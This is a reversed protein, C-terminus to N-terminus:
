NGAGCQATVQALIAADLLLGKRSKASCIQNAGFGVASRFDAGDLLAGTLDAGTLVTGPLQAWRLDAGRLDADVFIAAGLQANNLYAGPLKASWLYAGQMDVHELNAGNLHSERLDAKEFNTRILTASMLKAGYLTAGDVRADVLTAGTLSAYSLNAARLDSRSLNAGDLVARDLNAHNMQAQDLTAYRLDTQGLDASRLDAQSLFAGQFKARLLHANALFVRYAQAYRFNSDNLRAGKVRSVQEDSGNWDAPKTSIVAETLDAYPDVGFSWLATPAWRRISGAGFEPARDKGHPVGLITGASTFTLAGLLVLATTVPNIGRLKVLAREVVSQDLTWNAAPKGVKTTSYLAAGSAGVVLFEQLVTGHIEQLTLYRLWYFLLTAPVIWYALLISIAKEIVRTSPADQNMWRFHVRMLGVVIRPQNEGLARGDPFVAPLELVTDWLHQLHFHFVLYVIFLAFPAILYFQVTPLAASAEPSHLFRLISSNTLLQFDKTAWIMIWSLVSLSMMAAFYGYVTRSARKFEALAEFQLIHPPLAAEHLNAGALQHPVLGMSTELSAGELNAGELNAGVLCADRFNARVLCADRLDTMLLDAARLNADRLDMYRLNAGILDNGELDAAAFDIRKGTAGKSEIWEHHSALKEEFSWDRSSRAPARPVAVSESAAKASIEQPVESTAVEADVEADVGADVEVDVPSTFHIGPAPSQGSAQPQTASVLSAPAQEALEEDRPIGLITNLDEKVAMSEPAKQEATADEAHELRSARAPDSLNAYREIASAIALDDDSTDVIEDEAFEEENQFVPEAAASDSFAAHNDAPEERLPRRSSGDERLQAELQRIWPEETEPAFAELGAASAGNASAEATMEGSEALVREEAVPVGVSASQGLRTSQEAPAAVEAAEPEAEASARSVRAESNGAFAAKVNRLLRSLVSKRPQTGNKAAAANPSPDAEQSVTAGNPSQSGDQEARQASLASTMGDQGPPESPESASVDQIEAKPIM